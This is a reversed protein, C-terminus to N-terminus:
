GPALPQGPELQAWAARLRAARYGGPRGEAQDRCAGRLGGGQRRPGHAPPALSFVLGRHRRLPHPPGDAFAQILSAGNASCDASKQGAAGNAGKRLGFERTIKQKPQRLAAEPSNGHFIETEDQNKASHCAQGGRGCAGEINLAWCGGELIADVVKGRWGVWEEIRVVGLSAREGQGIDPAAIAAKNRIVAVRDRDGSGADVASNGGPIPGPLCPEGVGM